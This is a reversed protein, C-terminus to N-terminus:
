STSTPVHALWNLTMMLKHRKSYVRYAPNVARCQPIEPECLQFLGSANGQVFKELWLEDQKAENLTNWRKGPDPHTGDVAELLTGSYEFRHVTRPDNVSRTARVEELSPGPCCMTLKRLRKTGSDEEDNHFLGLPDFTTDLLCRADNYTGVRAMSSALSASHDTIQFV